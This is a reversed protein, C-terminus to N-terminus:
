TLLLVLALLLLVLALGAITGAVVRGLQSQLRARAAAAAALQADILERVDPPWDIGDFTPPDAARLQLRRQEPTSRDVLTMTTSYPLLVGNEGLERLDFELRRASGIPDEVALTRDDVTMVRPEHPDVTVTGRWRESM